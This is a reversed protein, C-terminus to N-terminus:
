AGAMEQPVATTGRPAAPRVATVPPRVASPPAAKRRRLRRRTSREGGPLAGYGYGYPLGGRPPVMTLVVGLTAADVRDLAQRALQLHESSTRGYRACLLVGDTLPALGLADAVPLLPPGDVVVVDVRAALTALLRSMAESALLEGPNPPIPGAALVTLRDNYPQLV